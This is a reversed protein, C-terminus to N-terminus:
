SAEESQGNLVNMVSEIVERKYELKEKTEKDDETNDADDITLNRHNGKSIVARPQLAAAAEQQALQSAHFLKDGVHSARGSVVCAAVFFASALLSVVAYGAVFLGFTGFM